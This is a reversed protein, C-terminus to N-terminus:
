RTTPKPPRERRRPLAHRWALELAHALQEPSLAVLRATTWGQRGWANPVPEFAEPAMLCKREQEDPALKLNCTQGDAALTAYIRAVRFASRDFHPAETTGELALATSRFEKASAM